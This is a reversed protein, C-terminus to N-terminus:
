NGVNAKGVAEVGALVEGGTEAFLEFHRGAFKNGSQVLESGNEL